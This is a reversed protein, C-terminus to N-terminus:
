LQKAWDIGPYLEGTHIFYEVAKVGAELDTLALEKEIPSQGGSKLPTKDKVGAFDPNYSYYNNQGFDGCFGLALWTGDCLVEMWNDEGDPDLYLVAEVGSPIQQLLRAILTQTIEKGCYTKGNYDLYQIQITDTNCELGDTQKPIRHLEM